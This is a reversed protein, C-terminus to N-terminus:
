EAAEGNLLPLSDRVTNACREIAAKAAKYATKHDDGTDMARQYHVGAIREAMSIAARLSPPLKSRIGVPIGFAKNIMKEVNMHHIPEPTSSGSKRVLTSIADHCEHYCPLYDTKSVLTERAERFAKILSKKIARARPTNKSYTLLLYAQDENLCAFRQPRGKSKRTEFAFTGFEKFDTQYTELLELLNKHQIGLGNAILRSSVRPESNKITVEIANNM